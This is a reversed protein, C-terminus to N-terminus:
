PLNHFFELQSEDLTYNYVPDLSFIISDTLVERPMDNLVAFSPYQVYRSLPTVQGKYFFGLSLTCRHKGLWHKALQLLRDHVYCGAGGMKSFFSIYLMINKEVELHQLKRYHRYLPPITIIVSTTRNVRRVLYDIGQWFQGNYAPNLFEVDLAIERVDYKNVIKPIWNVYYQINKPSLYGYPLPWPSVRDDRLAQLRKLDYESNVRVFVQSAYDPLGKSIVGDLSDELWFRM